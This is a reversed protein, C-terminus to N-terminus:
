ALLFAGNEMDLCASAVETASELLLGYQESINRM